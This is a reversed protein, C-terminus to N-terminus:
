SIKFYQKFHRFTVVKIGYHRKIDQLYHEATRESISVFLACIDKATLKQFEKYNATDTM